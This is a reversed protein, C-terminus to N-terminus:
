RVNETLKLLFSKLSDKVDFSVNDSLIFYDLVVDVKGDPFNLVTM